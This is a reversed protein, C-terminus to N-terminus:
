AIPLFFTNENGVAKQTEIQYAENIGIFKSALNPFLDM